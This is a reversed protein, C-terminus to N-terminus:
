EKYNPKYSQFQDCSEGNFFDVYMNLYGYQEVM